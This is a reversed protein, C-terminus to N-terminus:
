LDLWDSLLNREEDTLNSRDIEVTPPMFSVHEVKGEESAILIRKLGGREGTIYYYYALRQDMKLLFAERILTCMRNLSSNDPRIMEEVPMDIKAQDTENTLKTFIAKLEANYVPLQNFLMGEPHQLFLLFLTQAVPDMEIEMNNFDPLLIRYDKDIVLRSPSLGSNLLILGDQLSILLKNFKPDSGFKFEKSLYVLLDILAEHSGHQTIHDISKQLDFDYGEGPENTFEISREILGLSKFYTNIFDEQDTTTLSVIRIEGKHLELIAATIEEPRTPFIDEPRTSDIDEPLEAKAILLDYFYRIFDPHQTLEILKADSKWLDNPRVYKIFREFHAKIQPQQYIPLFVFSRSSFLDRNKFERYYHNYRHFFDATILPHPKREVYVVITSEPQILKVKSQLEKNVRDFIDRWAIPQVLTQAYNLRKTFTWGKSNLHKITRNIERKGMPFISYEDKSYESFPNTLVM